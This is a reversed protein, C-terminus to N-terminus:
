RASIGKSREDLQAALFHHEQVFAQSAESVEQVKDQHNSIDQELLQEFLDYCMLVLVIM